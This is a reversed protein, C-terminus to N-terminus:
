FIIKGSLQTTRANNLFEKDPRNFFANTVTQFNYSSTYSPGNVNDVTGPQYQPHNLINYSQIGIELSYREFATIRKYLALDIDDIPRIPLTNREDNPSTGAGAQIYYANPNNATYGITAGAGNKVATVGSGTGRTGSPNIITRDIAAGSDGNINANDGSLVTAYEPSEYTYIPAILWNGVVNKLLFNSSHKYAQVDYLMELSIRNTRSLASRSYDCAICQSNQERRPTLVTAFVEDTADDMTKSWTYSLNMQLGKQFRRTLNTVLANYNSESYPQYSTVKSTFGAALWAPVINSLAQINALNTASPGAAELVSGGATTFLQNAATVRPQINIQDQTPLHIGRTGIYGIEATYATGITRQITLSYTEAYPVVQNPLYASTAARQAALGATTNPYVFTGSGSGPPLGGNKLFNPALYAPYGPSGVNETVSYQPPFSLTGLNDFLVDYNIGFGARISTKEDPAWNIGFRPAFSTYTPQPANFSALGPVSAAINLQQAREGVPVSTFEYRLGVNFTLTPSVRWTDNAYGYLATQDGYYTHNGSSRQAFGNADPALDHLFQDTDAYEYDGRARQTFGQPSIYKRGDFGIKITHKGKVWSINDTAQYLNQITFQPANGDAGVTLTGLDYFQFYPFQDLGPYSFNGATETNSYRNFGIRFENTLNPTFQHYESLAFLHWKFPEQTFFVPLLTEGSNAGSDTQSEWDHVYRLRLSDKSSITYDVSTTLSDFLLPAGANIQYNGLPINTSAGATGTQNNTVTFYQLGSVENGCANDNAASVQAGGAFNPLPVYKTFQQLNNASFGYNAALNNLTTVGAATPVCVYGSANQGLTNREFNAFFFLKDRIV